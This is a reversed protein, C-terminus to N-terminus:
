EGAWRGILWVVGYVLLVFLVFSTLCLWGLLTAYFGYFLYILAGGGIYLLLFFVLIFRRDQMNGYRRSNFPKDRM